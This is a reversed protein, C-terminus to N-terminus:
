VQNKFNFEYDASIVSLYVFKVQLFYHLYPYFKKTSCFYHSCHFLGAFTVLFTYGYKAMGQFAMGCGNKSTSNLSIM